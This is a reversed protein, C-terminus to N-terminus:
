WEGEIAQFESSTVAEIENGSADELSGLIENLFHNDRSSEQNLSVTGKTLLIERFSDASIGALECAQTFQLRRSQWLYVAM